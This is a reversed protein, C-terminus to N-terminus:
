IQRHNPTAEYEIIETMHIRSRILWELIPQCPNLPPWKEVGEHPKRELRVPHEPSAATEWHGSLVKQNM